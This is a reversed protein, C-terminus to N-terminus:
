YTVSALFAGVPDNYLGVSMLTLPQVIRLGHALCWRFLEANRSPLLFGAGAFERAGGILAQLDATSSGVAHGFFGVITAYGTIGGQHEVVSATGERIADALEGARDHGHVQLCVRNCAPLDALQAARVTRDPLNLGLAPGQMCALPERVEFGLKTYLSLSRNHFAAQVLRV